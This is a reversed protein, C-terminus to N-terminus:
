FPRSNWRQGYLTTEPPLDEETVKLFSKVQYPLNSHATHGDMAYSEVELATELVASMQYPQGLWTLISASGRLSLVHCVWTEM